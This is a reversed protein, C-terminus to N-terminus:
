PGYPRYVAETGTCPHVKVKVRTCLKSVKLIADRYFVRVVNVLIAVNCEGSVVSPKELTLIEAERVSYVRAKICSKSTM